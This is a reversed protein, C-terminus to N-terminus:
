LFRCDVHDVIQLASQRGTYCLPLLGLLFIGLRAPQM